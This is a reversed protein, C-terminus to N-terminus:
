VALEKYLFEGIDLTFFKFFLPFFSVGFLSRARSIEGSRESKIAESEEIITDEKLEYRQMRTFIHCYSM